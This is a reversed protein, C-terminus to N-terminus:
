DASQESEVSVSGPPILDVLTAGWGGATDEANRFTRVISLGALLGRVAKRQVGKGKGHIVRVELIGKERCVHLYEEVVSLIEGPQFVHLDLVGDLPVDVPDDSHVQGNPIKQDDPLEVGRLLKTM